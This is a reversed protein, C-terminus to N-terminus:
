LVVHFNIRIDQGSPHRPSVVEPLLSTLYFKNLNPLM